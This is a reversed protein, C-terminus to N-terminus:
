YGVIEDIGNSHTQLDRTVLLPAGILACAPRVQRNEFALGIEIFGADFFEAGCMDRTHCEADASHNISSRLMM